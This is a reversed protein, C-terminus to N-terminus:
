SKQRPFLPLVEVAQPIAAHVDVALEDFFAEARAPAWVGARGPPAPAADVVDIVVRGDCTVRLVDGRAEVALEHWVLPSLPADRAGLIREQGGRIRALVIRDLEIRAVHHTADDAHRFVLGCAGDDRSVRCRTSIRLDRTNVRSAVLTAAPANEDGARNVLARAGTAAEDPTIDWAGAAPTSGRLGELSDDVFTWRHRPADGALASALVVVVAIALAAIGRAPWSVPRPVPDPGHTRLVIVPADRADRERSRYPDITVRPEAPHVIADRALELTQVDRALREARRGVAGAYGVLAISGAWVVAATLTRTCVVGYLGLLAAGSAGVAFLWRQRRVLRQRDRRAAALADGLIAESRMRDVAEASSSTM